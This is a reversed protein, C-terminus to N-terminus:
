IGYGQHKNSVALMPMEADLRVSSPKAAHGVMAGSAGITVCGILVAGCAAARPIFFCVGGAMEVMGVVLRFGQGLGILEFEQVMLDAGLLKACGAALFVLGLVIQVAYRTTMIMMM